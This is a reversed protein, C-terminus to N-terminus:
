FTCFDSDKGCLLNNIFQAVSKFLDFILNDAEHFTRLHKIKVARATGKYPQRVTFIGIVAIKARKTQRTCFDSDKGCM